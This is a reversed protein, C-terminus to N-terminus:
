AAVAEGDYRLYKAVIAHKQGKQDVVLTKGFACFICYREEIVVPECRMGRLEERTDLGGRIGVYSCTPEPDDLHRHFRDAASLVLKMYVAVEATQAGTTLGVRAIPYSWAKLLVLLRAILYKRPDEGDWELVYLTAELPVPEPFALTLWEGHAEPYSSSGYACLQNELTNKRQHCPICLYHTNAQVYTGGMRRPIRRDRHVQVHTAKCADCSGLM